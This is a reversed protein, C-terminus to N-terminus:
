FQPVTSVVLVHTPAIILAMKAAFKIFYPLHFIIIAPFTMTQVPDARRITSLIYTMATPVKMQPSAAPPKVTKQGLYTVSHAGVFNVPGRPVKPYNKQQKPIAIGEHIVSTTGASGSSWM